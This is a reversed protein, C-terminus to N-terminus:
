NALPVRYTRGCGLSPSLVLQVTVRPRFSGRLGATAIELRCVARPGTVTHWFYTERLRTEGTERWGSRVRRAVAFRVEATPTVGGNLRKAVVAVRFDRTTLVAVSVIRPATAHTEGRARAANPQVAVLAVVSVAVVAAEVLNRFRRERSM